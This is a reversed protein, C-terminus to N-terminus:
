KMHEELFKEMREYFDFRNEENHFGHGENEKVMYEVEVGRERMAAVMQDSEIKKVRPDNAGQAIFLPAKINRAHFVPSTETLSEKDKEPDGIMEYMMQRYPEWYPPINELITFINSVGVYDIGCRYLDPTFTLGAITAYGGYSGGYIAIRDKDAIGKAILWRVGDTVDDQMRRGWQKFGAEWFDRGYGTSGRFNVQLVAYGRNALFQVEPDFSWVDRASPGGHPNVVVPLHRATRLTLRDPLTLYGHITFGDRSTYKIPYMEAMDKERLWPAVKHIFTLADRKKDYMYYTVRARDSHTGVIFIDEEKDVDFIGIEYKDNGIAKELKFILDRFDDDFYYRETKWSIYYAAQLIKNKKSYSAREVDYQPNEYLVRLEKGNNLDFEVLATKDRGLNSVAYVNRNDFTFLLPDLTEKFDTTLVITFDDKESKRYLLSQNVGDSTVAVRLRGDHDTMWGTITGPNEAIMTLEGTVINLRYADFIRADRKNMGIIVEDPIDELEDIITTKVGDFDTLCKLNSGDINVGYLRFNEDGGNDKLYLIREDNAWLYGGIDRDTEFTLQKAQEQGTDHVFINMRRNYPAMFSLHHGDPSIQFSTKEPKRFFDRLPILPTKM